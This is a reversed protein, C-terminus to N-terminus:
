FKLDAMLLACGALGLLIVLCLKFRDSLKAKIKLYVTRVPPVVFVQLVFVKIWFFVFDVAYMGFGMLGMSLGARQPLFIAATIAPCITSRIADYIEPLPVNDGVDASKTSHRGPSTVVFLLFLACLSLRGSLGAVNWIPMAAYTELSFVKGPIGRQLVYWSFCSGAILLAVTFKFLLSIEDRDLSQYLAGSFRKMGRIYLSQAALLLFLIIFMDADTSVFQPLSGMPIFLFILILCICSAYLCPPPCSRGSCRGLLLREFPALLHVGKNEHVHFIADESGIFILSTILVFLLLAVGSIVTILFQVPSM